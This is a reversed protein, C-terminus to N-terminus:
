QDLVSAREVSDIVLTRVPVKKASLKLGLQTELATMVAARMPERPDDGALITQEPPVRWDAKVDYFGTLGTQDVGVLGLKGAVFRAFDAMSIGHGELGTANFRFSDRDENQVASPTMKHGGRAVELAYASMNQSTEHFQLKFRDALLAALRPQLAAETLNGAIDANAMVDFRDTRIWSPGGTVNWDMVGYARQILLVLTYGRAIFTPGPGVRVTVIHDDLLNPRVSAVEFREPVQAMVSAGAVAVLASSLIFRLRHSRRSM